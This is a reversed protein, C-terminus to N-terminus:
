HRAGKVHEKFAQEGHWPCKIDLIWPDDSTGRDPTSEPCTCGLGWAAPTGPLPFDKAEM